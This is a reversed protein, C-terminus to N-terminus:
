EQLAVTVLASVPDLPIGSLRDIDIWDMGPPVPCEAEVRLRYVLIFYPRCEQLTDDNCYGVLEVRCRETGVLHRGSGLALERLASLGHGMRGTEPPITTAHLLVGEHSVLVERRRVVMLGLRVEKADHNDALVRPASYWSEEALSELVALDVGRSFGSVRFLERRPMALVLAADDVM